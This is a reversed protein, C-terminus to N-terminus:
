FEIVKEICDLDLKFSHLISILPLRYSIGKDTVLLFSSKNLMKIIVTIKSDNSPEKFNIFFNYYSILSTSLILRITISNTQKYSEKINNKLISIPKWITLTKSKKKM